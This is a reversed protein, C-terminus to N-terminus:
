PLDTGHDIGRASGDFHQGPKLALSRVEPRSHQGGDTEVLGFHIDEFGKFYRQGVKGRLRRLAAIGLQIGADDGLFVDLLAHPHHQRFHGAALNVEAEGRLM